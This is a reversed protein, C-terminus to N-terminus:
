TLREAQIALYKILTQEDIINQNILIVGILEGNLKQFELAKELQEQTVIGDKLLLEGILPKSMVKEM